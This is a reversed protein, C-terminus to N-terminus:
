TADALINKVLKVVRAEMQRRTLKSNDISFDARKLLTKLGVLKGLESIDRERLLKECELSGFRGRKILRKARVRFNTETRIM